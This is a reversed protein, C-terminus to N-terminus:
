IISSADKLLMTVMKMFRSENFSENVEKIIM